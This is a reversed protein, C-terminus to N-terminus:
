FSHCAGNKIGVVTHLLANSQLLRLARQRIHQTEPQDSARAKENKMHFIHEDQLYSLNM